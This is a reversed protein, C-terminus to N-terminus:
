DILSHYTSLNVKTLRQNLASPLFKNEFKLKFYDVARHMPLLIVEMDDDIKFNLIQQTYMEVIELYRNYETPALEDYTEIFRGFLKIRHLQDKLTICSSIMQVFKREAVNKLGYKQMFSDYIWEILSTQQNNQSTFTAQTNSM